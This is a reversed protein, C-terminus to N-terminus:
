RMAELPDIRSNLRREGWGQGYVCLHVRIAKSLTKSINHPRNGSCRGANGPSM